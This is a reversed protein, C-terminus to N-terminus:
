TRTARSARDAAPKRTRPPVDARSRASRGDGVARTARNRTVTPRGGVVRTTRGHSGAWARGRSRASSWARRMAARARRAAARARARARAAAVKAREQRLARKAAALMRKQLQHVIERVLQQQVRLDRSALLQKLLSRTEPGIVVRVGLAHRDIDPHLRDRDDALNVASDLQRAHTQLVSGRVAARPKLM